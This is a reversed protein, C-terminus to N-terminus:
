YLRAESWPRYAPQSNDFTIFDILDNRGIQSSTLYARSGAWYLVSSYNATRFGAPNGWKALLDAVRLKSVYFTSSLITNNNADITMQVLRYGAIQRTYCDRGQVNGFMAALYIKGCTLDAPASNGPLLSPSVGEWASQPNVPEAPPIVAAAVDVSNASLATDQPASPAFGDIAANSAMNFAPDVTQPQTIEVPTVPHSLILVASALVVIGIVAIVLLKASRPTIQLGATRISETVARMKPNSVAQAM